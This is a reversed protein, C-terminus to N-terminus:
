NDRKISALRLVIRTDAPTRVELRVATGEAYRKAGDILRIISAPLGSRRAAQGARDGLAFSALFGGTGPSLYVIARSGRLVRLAWGAKPSYSKWERADTGVRSDLDALLKDWLLKRAGLVGTLDQENPAEKRAIFANIFAM